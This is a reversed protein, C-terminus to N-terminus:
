QNTPGFRAILVAFEREERVLRFLAQASGEPDDTVLARLGTDDAKKTLATWSMLLTVGDTAAAHALRPKLDGEAGLAIDIEREGLDGVQPKLIERENIRFLALSPGAWAVYAEDGRMGALTAGAQWGRAAYDSLQEHANTLANDFVRTISMRPEVFASDVADWVISAIEEPPGSVVEIMGYVVDIGERGGEWRRLYPRWPDAKAARISFGAATISSM